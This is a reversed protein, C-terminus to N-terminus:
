GAVSDSKNPETQNAVDDSNDLPNIKIPSVKWGKEIDASNEELDIETALSCKDKDLNDISANEQAMSKSSSHKFGMQSNEQKATFGVSQSSKEESQGAQNNFHASKDKIENLRQTITERSSKLLDDLVEGMSIQSQGDFFKSWMTQDFDSVNIKNPTINQKSIDLHKEKKTQAVLKDHKASMEVLASDM